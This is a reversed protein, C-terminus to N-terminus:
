QTAERYVIAIGCYVRIKGMDGGGWDVDMGLSLKHAKDLSFKTPVFEGTTFGWREGDPNVRNFVDDDLLCVSPHNSGFFKAHAWTTEYLTLGRPVTIQFSNVWVNQEAHTAVLMLNTAQPYRFDYYSVTFGSAGADLALSRVVSEILTSTLRNQDYNVWDILASALQWKTLYAVIWGDNHLFVQVEANEGLEPVKEYGPAIMIGSIFQDTQQRITKFRPQLSALDLPPDLKTYAAIGAEKLLFKFDVQTTDTIAATSDAAYVSQVFAPPRLATGQEIQSTAQSEQQKPNAPPTLTVLMVAILLAVILKRVYGRYGM